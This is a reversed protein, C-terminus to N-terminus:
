FQFTDTDELAQLRLMCNLGVVCVELSVSVCSVSPLMKSASVKCCPSLCLAAEVGEQRKHAAGLWGFGVHENSTQCQGIPANKILFPWCLGAPAVGDGRSTHGVRWSGAGCAPAVLVEKQVVGM